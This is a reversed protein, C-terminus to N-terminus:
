QSSLINSVAVRKPSDFIPLRPELALTAPKCVPETLTTEPIRMYRSILLRNFILRSHHKLLTSPLFDRILDCLSGIRCHRHM